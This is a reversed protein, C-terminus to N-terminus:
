IRQTNTVVTAPVNSAAVATAACVVLAGGAAERAAGEAVGLAGAVPAGDRAGVGPVGDGPPTVCIGDGDILLVGDCLM